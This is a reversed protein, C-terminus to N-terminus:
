ARSQQANADFPSRRTSVISIGGPTAPWPDAFLHAIQICNVTPSLSFPFVSWMATSASSASMAASLTFVSCGSATRGGVFDARHRVDGLAHARRSLSPPNFFAAFFYHLTASTAWYAVNLLRIAIGICFKAAHTANRGSAGGANRIRCEWSSRLNSLLKREIQGTQCIQADNPVPRNQAM